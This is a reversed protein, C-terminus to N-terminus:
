LDVELGLAFTWVAGGGTISPYGPNRTQTGALSADEDALVSPDRAADVPSGVRKTYTRDAMWHVQAGVGLHLAVGWVPPLDVAAGAAFIWRDNDILNTRGTQDGVITPEYGAGARLEVSRGPAYPTRWRGGARVSVTDRFGPSAPAATLALGTLTAQVNVFPGGWDSWRAYRVDATLGWRAGRWAAGLVLEDPTFLGAADVTIDLPIGGVTNRTSVQYPVEFRQRYVLALSWGPWPDFRVGAVLSARARIAESITADVARAPGDRAAAPGSLGAFVNAAVGVSLTDTIRLAVAPLVVARQTRNGYYPFAPDAPFGTTIHIVADPLAYIGVGAALHRAVWTDGRPVVALGATIGWSDPIDQREGRVGLGSALLTGGLHATSRAGFALGAPNLFTASFDTATAAGAGAQAVSAAGWGFLDPDSARAARPSALAAAWIGTAIWGRRM